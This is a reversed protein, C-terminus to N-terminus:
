LKGSSLVVFTEIALGGVVVTTEFWILYQLQQM